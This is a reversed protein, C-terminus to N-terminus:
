TTLGPPSVFVPPLHQCKQHSGGFPHLNYSSLARNYSRSEAADMLSRGPRTDKKSPDVNPLFVIWSDCSASRTQNTRSRTIEHITKTRRLSVRGM